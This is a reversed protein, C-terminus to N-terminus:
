NDNDDDGDGDIENYIVIAGVVTAAVVALTVISSASGILNNRRAAEGNMPQGAVYFTTDDSGVLRLDLPSSRIVPARQATASRYDHSVTMRLGAQPEGSREGGLPIEFYAGVGAGSRREGTDVFGHLDAALVPTATMSLCAAFATLNRSM